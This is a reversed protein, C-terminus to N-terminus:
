QGLPQTSVHDPASTSVAAVARKKALTSLLAKVVRPDFQTGNNVVIERTAESTSMARRYPRDSVMAHYADCTLVVRSALPIDEGALGDPYGTGDFREHEARVAPALHRLSGVSELIQAGIEPHRRMVEWEEETLRGPKQLIGDPVGVKGIDHLLAVHRVDTTQDESCRLVSACEVALDVVSACHEGTYADRAELSAVLAGLAEARVRLAALRASEREREVAQAVLQALLALIRVERGGLDKADHDACCLTGYLVGESLVVPVGLYAVIGASWTAELESVVPATRADGIANPIEGRVMRDCFSDPLAVETGPTLGFSEGEGEVLQVRQLGADFETLYVVDMGLMERTTSLIGDVTERTDHRLREDVLM